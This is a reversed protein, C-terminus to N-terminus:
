RPPPQRQDAFRRLRAAAAVPREHPNQHGGALLVYRDLFSTAGNTQFNGSSIPLDPLGEWAETAVDYSWNDIVTSANATAGGIVLLKTGGMVPSFSHIFRPSGPLDPLRRWGASLNLTDLM